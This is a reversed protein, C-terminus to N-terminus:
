ALKVQTGDSQWLDNALEREFRKTAKPRRAPQPAVLHNRRLARHIPAVAPPEIGARRLEAHIRRAGWRPHRRRLEVIREELWPEIQAPSSLPRRSRPTLGAVGEELYLRRYRYYSARSIGHRASVETVSEGSREPELVVELKLEEM